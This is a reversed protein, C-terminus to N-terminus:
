ANNVYIKLDLFVYKLWYFYFYKAQFSNEYILLHRRKVGKLHIKIFNILKCLFSCYMNLIFVILSTTKMLLKM